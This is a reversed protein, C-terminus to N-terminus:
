SDSKSSYDQPTDIDRVVGPSACSVIHVQQTHSRPLANLGGDCAPSLVFDALAAPFIIPHGRRGAHEAIIIRDPTARFATICADIDATSIGPQDAPCILFGDHASTQERGQWATLGIRISDIMETAPDDNLVVFTDRPLPPLADAITRHTVLAVGTVSSAALRELVAMAMPQGAVDLLQKDSGMRRSRGAAPLIAFIRHDATVPKSM